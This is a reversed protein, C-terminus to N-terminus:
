KIFLINIIYLIILHIPYFMYLFYKTDPGKKGNYLNIFILPVLYASMLLLYAYYFNTAFYLPIYKFLILAVYSINMWIKKEKFIYFSFIMLIGFAGYDMKFFDATCSLCAVLLIGVYKNDCKEYGILAVLGIFLTFFINLVTSTQFVTCFLNFPIQSLLAFLFLRYLYNKKSKTYIFGQTLQFAFIPFALRGIYNLFSFEGWLTYGLHDCFMSIMAIIKLLFSSM